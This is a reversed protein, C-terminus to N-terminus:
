NESKRRLTPANPERKEDAPPPPLPEAPEIIMRFGKDFDVLGMTIKTGPPITAPLAVRLFDADSAALSKQSQGDVVFAVSKAQIQNATRMPALRPDNQRLLDLLEPAATARNEPPYRVEVLTRPQGKDPPYLQTYRPRLVRTRWLNNGLDDQRIHYDISWAEPGYKPVYGALVLRILPEDESINIKSYFQGALQRIRELVAVGLAEIDNAGESTDARGSTNLAAGALRSLENDLRIPKDSSDPQVWEVAGLMVGAHLSSLPVVVPQRSGPESHTEITAVIIGDMAACIVVRGEALNVAVEKAMAEQASGRTPLLWLYGWLFVSIVPLLPLYPFRRQDIKRAMTSELFVM